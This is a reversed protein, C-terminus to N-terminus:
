LGLAERLEELERQHSATLETHRKLEAINIRLRSLRRRRCTHEPSESTSWMFGSDGRLEEERSPWRTAYAWPGVEWDKLDKMLSKVRNVSCRALGYDKAWMKTESADAWRWESAAAAALNGLATRNLQQLDVVHGDQADDYPFTAHLRWEADKATSREENQFVTVVDYPHLSALDRAQQLRLDELELWCKDREQVDLVHQPVQLTSFYSSFDFGNGCSSTAARKQLVARYQSLFGVSHVGDEVEAPRYLMLRPRAERRSRKSVVPSVSGSEGRPSFFVGHGDREDAAERQRLDDQEVSFRIYLDNHEDKWAYLLANRKLPEEVETIHCLAYWWRSGTSVSEHRARHAEDETSGTESACSGSREESEKKLMAIQASIYSAQVEAGDEITVTHAAATSNTRTGSRSHQSERTRCHRSSGAKSSKRSSDHYRHCHRSGSHQGVAYAALSVPCPPPPAIDGSSGQQVPPALLEINPATAESKVSSVTEKLPVRVVTPPAPEDSDGTLQFLAAVLPRTLSFFRYSENSSAAVTTSLSGAAAGSSPAAARNDAVSSQAETSQPKYLPSAKTTACGAGEFYSFYSSTSPTWRQVSSSWDQSAAALAKRTAGRLYQAVGGAQAEEQTAHHTQAASSSSPTGDVENTAALPEAAVDSVKCDDADHQPADTLTGVREAFPLPVSLLVEHDAMFLLLRNAAWDPLVSLVGTPTSSTSERKRSNYSRQPAYLEMLVTYPFTVAHHDASVNNNNYAATSEEALAEAANTVAPATSGSEAVASSSSRSPPSRIDDLWAELDTDKFSEVALEKEMAVRWPDGVHPAAVLAAAGLAKRAVPMPASGLLLVTGSNTVAATCSWSREEESEAGEEVVLRHRGLPVWHLFFESVALRCGPRPVDSNAAYVRRTEILDGTCGCLSWLELAPRALIVTMPIGVQYPPAYIAIGVDCVRTPAVEQVLSVEELVFARRPGWLVRLLVTNLEAAGDGEGEMLQEPQVADAPVDRARSSLYVSVLRYGGSSSSARSFANHCRNCLEVCPGVLAVRTAVGHELHYFIRESMSAKEMTSLVHDEEEPTLYQQQLPAQRPGRCAQAGSDGTTSTFKSGEAAMRKEKPRANTQRYWLPARELVAAAEKEVDFLVVTGVEDVSVVAPTLSLPHCPELAVQTCQMCVVKNTQHQTHGLCFHAGSSMVSVGHVVRDSGSAISFYRSWKSLFLVGDVLVPQMAACLYSERVQFRQRTEILEFVGTASCAGPLVAAASARPVAASSSIRNAVMGLTSSSQSTPQAASTDLAPLQRERYLRVGTRHVTVLTTLGVVCLSNISSNPYPDLIVASPPRYPSFRCIHATCHEQLNGRMGRFKRRTPSFKVGEKTYLGSRSSRSGHVSSSGSAQSVSRCSSNAPVDRSRRPGKPSSTTGSM